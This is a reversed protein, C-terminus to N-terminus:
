ILRYQGCSFIFTILLLLLAVIVVVVLIVVNVLIVVVVGVFDVVFVTSKLLAM